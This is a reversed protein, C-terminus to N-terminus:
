RTDHCSALSQKMEMPRVVQDETRDEDSGTDDSKVGCDPVPAGGRPLQQGSVLFQMYKRHRQRQSHAKNGSNGNQSNRCFSVEVARLVPQHADAVDRRLKEGTEEEHRDEVTQLEGTGVLYVVWNNWLFVWM